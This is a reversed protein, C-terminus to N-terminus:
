RGGGACGARLKSLAPIIFCLGIQAVVTAYVSRVFLRKLQPEDADQKVYIDDDPVAASAIVGDDLKKEDDDVGGSPTLPTKRQSVTHGEADQGALQFADVRRM